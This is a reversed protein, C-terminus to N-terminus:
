NLGYGVLTTLKVQGLYNANLLDQLSMMIPLIFNAHSPIAKDGVIIYNIRFDDVFTKVYTNFWEEVLGKNNALDTLMNNPIGFSVDIAGGRFATLVDVDPVDLRVRRINYQECLQVVKWPPPLNDGVLGYYAGLLIDYAGVVTAAMLISAMLFVIQVVKAMKKEFFRKFFIKLSVVCSSTKLILTACFPFLFTLREM